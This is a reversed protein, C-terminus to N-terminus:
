RPDRTAHAISANRRGQTRAQSQREERQRDQWRGRPPRAARRPCADNRSAPARLVFDEPTVGNGSLVGLIWSLGRRM